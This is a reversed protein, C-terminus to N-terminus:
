QIDIDLLLSALGYAGSRSHNSDFLPISRYGKRLCSFPIASAAIFFDKNVANDRDWVTFLVMATSPSSITFTAGNEENWVPCFGNRTVTKSTHQVSGEGPVGDYLVVKVRPSITPVSKSVGEPKPLGHGSLIRLSLQKPFEKEIQEHFTTVRSGGEKLREPKLVYGTSGNERFRGDVLLLMGSSAQVNVSVLQCGMAWPIMPNYNSLNKRIKASPFTRTIHNKSFEMWHKWESPGRETMHIMMGESINHSSSYPLSLSKQWQKFKVSGMLTLKALRPCIPKVKSKKIVYAEAQREAAVVEAARSVAKQAIDRARDAKKRLTRAQSYAIMANRESQKAANHRHVEAAAEHKARNLVEISTELVAKADEVKGDAELKHKRAGEYAAEARERQDQLANMEADESSTDHGRSALSSLREAEKRSSIALQNSEEAAREAEQLQAKMSALDADSRQVSVEAKESAIHRLSAAEREEEAHETLQEAISMSQDAQRRAAAAVNRQEKAKRVAEEAAMIAHNSKVEYKNCAVSADKVKELCYKKEELALKHKTRQPFEFEDHHSGGDSISVSSQARRKQEKKEQKFTASEELDTIRQDVEGLSEIAKAVREKAKEMALKYEDAVKQLNEAECEYREEKRTESDARNKEVESTAQAKTARAEADAARQESIKAETSATACVSESAGASSKCKKLLERVTVVRAAATNAHMRNTRAEAMARESTQTKMEQNERRHHRREDIASMQASADQFV